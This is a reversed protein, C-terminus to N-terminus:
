FARALGGRISLGIPIFMVAGMLAGFKAGEAWFRGGGFGKPYIYALLAGYILHQALLLEKLPPSRDFDTVHMKYNVAYYVTTLFFSLVFGMITAILYTM